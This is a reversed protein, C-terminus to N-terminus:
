DNNEVKGTGTERSGLLVYKKYVEELSMKRNRFTDIAIKAKAFYEMVKIINKREVMYFIFGEDEKKYKIELKEAVAIIIRNDKELEGKIFYELKPNETADEANTPRDNPAWFPCAAFFAALSASSREIIM